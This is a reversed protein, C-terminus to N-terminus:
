LTNLKRIRLYGLLGVLTTLAGSIVYILTPYNAAFPSAIAYGLIIAIRVLAGYAAFVRGHLEKSTRKHLLSTLSVNMIGNAVGGYVESIAVVVFRPVLGTLLLSSGMFTLGLISPRELQEDNNNRGAIVSGILMGVGWLAFLLGYVIPSQQLIDRVLFIFTVGVLATAIFGTLIVALTTNLVADQRLTKIGEFAGDFLKKNQGTKAPPRRIGVMVVLYAAFAFSAADILLASSAGLTGLLLGGIAPGILLASRTFFEVIANVRKTSVLSRESISPILAYIAPQSIAFLCGLAFSGMLLLSIQQTNAMAILLFTQFVQTILLVRSTEFRDILQGALPALLVAPVLQSALFLAIIYGSSSLEELQLMMVALYIEDGITSIVLGIVLSFTLVPHLQALQHKVTQEKPM